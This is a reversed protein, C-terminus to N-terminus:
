GSVVWRMLDGVSAGKGQMLIGVRFVRGAVYVCAFTTLAMPIIAAVPQWWAVGPPVALRATMLMPSAFPFFSLIIAFTGNPNQMVPVLFLMPLTALMAVPFIYPQTGKIDKAAAGIALSLSGYMMLALIQYPVFWALVPVPLFELMGSFAGGVFAATLYVVSITLSVATLGLLKGMMLQFPDVSGLLVESIRQMKEEVVNQMAPGTGIMVSMFMLFVLAGPLLHGALQHALPADRLTGDEDRRTLGESQLTIPRLSPLKDAPMGADLWRQRLIAQNAVEEIWIPFEQYTIRETQYRLSSRDADSTSELVQKHLNKFPSQGPTITPLPPPKDSVPPRCVDPGIELFGFYDGRLVAESLEFRQQVTAEPNDASPAIRELIFPARLRKGSKNTIQNENRRRAADELLPFIMEGQTRDVVAFRKDETDGHVMMFATLVGIMGGGGVLLLPILILGILFSKTRVTALYDRMAIRIIKKM